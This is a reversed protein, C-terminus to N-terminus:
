TITLMHESERLRDKQTFLMISSQEIQLNREFCTHFYFTSIEKKETVAEFEIQCMVYNLVLAWKAVM